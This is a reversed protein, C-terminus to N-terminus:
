VEVLFDREFPRRSGDTEWPLGRANCVVRASGIGYDLTDPIHGHVWLDTLRVLDDLASAITAALPNARLARPVSQGSPAHHTVVITKGDFTKELQSLLWTRCCFHQSVSDEARFLRNGHRILRYDLLTKNAEKMAGERSLPGLAYDTWLCCGLVRIGRQVFTTRELYRISTKRARLRLGDHVDRLSSGRHELSGTVFIVPVDANGYLRVVESGLHINGALVLLDARDCVSLARATALGSGAFQHNLDSAIQLWMSDGNSWFHRDLCLYVIQLLLIYTAKRSRLGFACM